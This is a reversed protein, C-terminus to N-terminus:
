KLKKSARFVNLIGAVLGLVFFLLFFVPYKEFGFLRDLWWGAAAGIIVALVFSFGVTSLAGITRITNIREQRKSM